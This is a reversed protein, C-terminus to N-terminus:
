RGEHDNRVRNAGHADRGGEISAVFLGIIRRVLLM